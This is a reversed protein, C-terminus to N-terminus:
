RSTMNRRWSMVGNTRVAYKADNTAQEDGATGASGGGAAVLGEDADDTVMAGITEGEVGITEIALGSSGGARAELGKATELDTASVIRSVRDADESEQRALSSAAKM